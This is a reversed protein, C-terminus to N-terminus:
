ENAPQRGTEAMWRLLAALADEPSVEGIAQEFVDIKRRTEDDPAIPDAMRRFRARAETVLRQYRARLAQWNDFCETM